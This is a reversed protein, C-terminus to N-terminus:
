DKALLMKAAERLQQKREESLRTTKLYEDLALLPDMWSRALDPARLREPAKEVDKALPTAFQAEHLARRIERDDVPVEEQSHMVVKVVAQDIEKQAIADLVEPTGDGSELTVNVTVFRRAPTEIFEYASTYLSAQVSQAQNDWNPSIDVLVCGKAEEAESFDVREPSGSYVIPPQQNPNLDQFRHVHGLAVYAFAPHDLASKPLIIERGIAIKGESGVRAGQVSVHGALIAPCDSTVRAALDDLVKQARIERNAPRDTAEAIETSVPQSVDNGRSLNEAPLEVVELRATPGSSHIEYNESGAPLCVVQIPGSRTAIRRIDPKIVAQIGSVSLIPYLDLASRRGPLPPQDHNGAIMVVPIRAESLRGMREALLYQLTPSPERSRFADGCFLILDVQRSIAQDVIFDFSKLFDLLRTHLGTAPDLRGYNEVGLHLDAFHLIRM